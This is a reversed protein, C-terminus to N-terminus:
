SALFYMDRLREGLMKMDENIKKPTAEAYIETTEFKKHGLMRNVTVFPVGQSLCTVTAFTHRAMHFTLRRDIGCLEAIKKLEVNTASCSKMPFVRDSNETKGRYKEILQMPIELLPVKSVSGTKKRIINLWLLGDSDKTIQEKALHYLDIYALGTFCSFVFMDRTVELTSDNLLTNMIKEMEEEPIYRHCPKSLESSFGFFPDKGIFKKRIAIKIMKRLSTINKLVTLPKMRCDVRLYFYYDEIFSYTLQRFHLDSVHYKRHIFNELHTCTYEYNKWTKRAFNVGAMKEYMQNHERFIQLLTEQSTSIGQFSNKVENATAFGRNSVIERYKANITVNIKDIERNIARTHFGKGTMRGARTDWLKPNAELKSSFQAIDKGITIRGMVPCLENRIDKKRLYFSVRVNVDSTKM